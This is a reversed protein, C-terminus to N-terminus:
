KDSSGSSASESSNRPVLLYGVASGNAVRTIVLENPRGDQQTYFIMPQQIKQDTVWLTRADPVLQIWGNVTQREVNTQKITLHIGPAVESSRDKSVEFTVRERDHLRALQSIDGQSQDVRRNVDLVVRSTGERLEAIQQTVDRRLNSVEGQIRAVRAREAEQTTEISALRTRLPELRKDLEVQLQEGVATAVAATQKRASGLGSKVRKELDNMQARLIDRDDAWAQLREEATAVRQGVGDLMEKASTLQQPLLSQEQLYPYAYWVAGALLALVILAGLWGTARRSRREEREEEELDKRLDEKRLDAQAVRVRKQEESVELNLKEM